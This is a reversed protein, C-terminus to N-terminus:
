VKLKNLNDIIKLELKGNIIDLKKYEKPFRQLPTFPDIPDNIFYSLLTTLIGIHFPNNYQFLYTSLVPFGINYICNRITYIEDKNLGINSILKDIIDEANLIPKLNITIDKIKIIPDNKLVRLADSVFTNLDPYVDKAVMGIIQVSGLAFKADISISYTPDKFDKACPYGLIEGMKEDSTIDNVTYQKKSILVNGFELLCHKLPFHKLIAALKNKTIPDEHTIEKYDAAQLLMANRVDNMVLVCNIYESLGIEHIM